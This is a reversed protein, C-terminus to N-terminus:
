YLGHTSLLYRLLLFVTGNRLVIKNHAHTAFLPSAHLYRLGSPWHPVSCLSDGGVESDM